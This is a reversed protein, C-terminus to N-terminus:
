RPPFFLIPAVGSRVIDSAVSGFLASRIATARSRRPMAIFTPSLRKAQAVIARGPNNDLDVITTVKFGHKRLPEACHDLYDALEDIQRQEAQVTTEAFVPVDPGTTEGGAAIAPGMPLASVRPGPRYGRRRRGAPAAVTLLVVEDGADLIDGLRGLVTEAPKSGDMPVLVRKM